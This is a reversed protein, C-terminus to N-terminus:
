PTPGRDPYYDITATVKRRRRPAPQEPTAAMHRQEWEAAHEPLIVFRPKGARTPSINLAMLEGSRIMARVRDPSIRRIAGFENPTQGRPPASNAM